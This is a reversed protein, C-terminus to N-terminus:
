WKSKSSLVGNDFCFQYSDLFEGDKVPYYICDMTLGDTETTQEDEPEGLEKKVDKLSTGKKISKFQKETISHKQSDKEVEDMAGGLLAACGGIALVMLIIGAIVIKLITKM